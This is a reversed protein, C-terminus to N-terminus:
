WLLNRSYRYCGQVVLKQTPSAVPIFTGRGICWQNLISAITWLIGGSVDKLPMGFDLLIRTNDAEIEVCIGGVEHSGRHITLKM